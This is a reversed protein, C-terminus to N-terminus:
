QSFFCMSNIIYKITEKSLLEHNAMVIYLSRSTRNDIEIQLIHTQQAAVDAFESCADDNNLSPWDWSCSMPVESPWTHSSFNPNHTHTHWTRNNEHRMPPLWFMCAQDNHHPHVASDSLGSSKELSQSTPSIEMKPAHARRWVSLAVSIIDFYISFFGCRWIMMFTCAGTQLPFWDGFVPIWLCEIYSTLNQFHLADFMQWNIQLHWSFQDHDSSTDKM